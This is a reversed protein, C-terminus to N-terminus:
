GVLMRLVAVAAEKDLLRNADPCQALYLCRSCGERCSCGTLLELAMTLWEERREFLAAALGMGGQMKDFVFVSPHLPNPFLAFWASGLDSRDCGAILPAVSTVAHELGHIAGLFRENDPEPRLHLTLRVGVTNFQEPPLDLDEIGLTDGGRIAKRRFGTVQETVELGLLSVLGQPREVMGIQMTPSLTTQIVPSTTYDTRSPELVVRSRAPDNEVVIYPEGRHLYIAGVHAWQAARWAEMTGLEAGNAMLTVARGGLGRISVAGAPPSHSPYFAMGGSWRLENSEALERSLPLAAPSWARLEDEILPREYAACRLHGALVHPNDPNCVASESRSSVLAQADRVLFQEMPDDHALFVALGPKVGRGARGAQQFLGAISGPYGNVIVADLGGVDIGLELANTAALGLLRGQALGQEIDRREKPTYGARYAELREALDPALDRAYRLVLEAGNRSRCFALTRVGERACEVMMRAAAHSPSGVRGGLVFSRGGQPSGDRDVLVVDRGTITRVHEVPNGITASAAVVMPRNGHWQCLRLLRRIVNAVHSGFVGRYVHAEDLVVFRLSRLFPVWLDHKPILTHHVFDPNSLVIRALNKIATRQRMPTDGDLTAPSISLPSALADLKGLQDHALAKTPYLVLARSMPERLLADLIPLQFCLSKGSNTGTVVVFDERLLARDFAERQHRYLRVFGLDHLRERARPHLSDPLDAWVAERPPLEIVQDIREDRVWRDILPRWPENPISM